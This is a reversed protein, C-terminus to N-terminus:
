EKRLYYGVYGWFKQMPFKYPDYKGMRDIGSHSTVMKIDYKKLWEVVQEACSDVQADPWPDLIKKSGTNVLEIGLSMSNPNVVPIGENQGISGILSYGVHHAIVEDEIMRYRTGDKGIVVHISVGRDNKRLYNLQDEVKGSGGTHHLVVVQPNWSRKSGRVSEDAPYVIVNYNTPM